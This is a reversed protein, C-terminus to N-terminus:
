ISRGEENYGVRGKEVKDSSACKELFVRLFVRVVLIEGQLGLGSRVSDQYLKKGRLWM